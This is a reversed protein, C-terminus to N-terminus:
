ALQPQALKRSIFSKVTSWYLEPAANASEGHRGHHVLLKEKECGAASFLDDMMAHPILEDADGHIFLIPTRSKKVQRVCSAAKIDLRDKLLAMTYIPLLFPNAPLRAYRKIQVAFIEWVSSFGCDAIICRVEAPMEEGSAMMATSAGMSVGFLVIQAKPNQKIVYGCWDIIDLRDHWGMSITRHESSEHGRLAPYLTNFGSKHFKRGFPGMTDPAGTYGHLCIVWRDTPEAAPITYGHLPTNRRSLIITEAPEMSHFWEEGDYNFTNKKREEQYSDSAALRAQRQYTQRTLLIRYLLAGAGIYLITFFLFSSSLIIAVLDIAFNMFHIGSKQLHLATTVALSLNRIKIVIVHVAL